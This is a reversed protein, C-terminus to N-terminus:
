LARQVGGNNLSKAKLSEDLPKYFSNKVGCKGVRLCAQVFHFNHGFSMKRLKEDFCYALFFM